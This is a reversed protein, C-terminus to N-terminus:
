LNPYLPISDVVIFSSSSIFIVPLKKFFKLGIDPYSFDETLEPAEALINYFFLRLDNEGQDLMEFYQKLPMKIAPAHQHKRDISPKSDYLSVLNDGAVETIYDMNWKARAPWNETLKEIVLPQNNRKYKRLFDDSNITEVRKVSSTEIM